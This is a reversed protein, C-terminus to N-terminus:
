WTESGEDKAACAAAADGPGARALDVHCRDDVDRPAATAAGGDEPGAAEAGSIHALGDPLLNGVGWEQRCLRRRRRRPGSARSRRPLSRADHAARKMTM